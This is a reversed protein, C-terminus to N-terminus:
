YLKISIKPNSFQSLSQLDDIIKNQWKLQQARDDSRRTENDYLKQEKDLQDYIEDYIIMFDGKYSKADFKTNVIRECSM